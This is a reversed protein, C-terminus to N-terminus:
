GTRRYRRVSLPAFVLVLAASWLLAPVVHEATPGGLVLARVAEITVSVPQNEAFVRLWDPMTAPPVFASSGFVLPASLPFSTAQATEANASMLGILAFVWSMAFAFVVLLGIAALLALPGTHVRFGVLLGVGVMVVVVGVVRVLDALSRGALVASRATPLARFRDFVGKHRDEALGIGTAIVGFVITQGFIGPMLYDVYDVGGPATIAGGFVYRFMLVFLVPQVLSFVLLQPTRALQRLNRGAIALTHRVVPPATRAPRASLDRPAAAVTTTM